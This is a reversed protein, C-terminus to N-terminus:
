SRGHSSPIPAGCALDLDRYASQWNRAAVLQPCSLFRVGVLSAGSLDAGDLVARFCDAGELHAGILIADRLNTGRLDAKRLDAAALNAGILDLGYLPADALEPRADAHGARWANWDGVSSKLMALQTKDAMPQEEVLLDVSSRM